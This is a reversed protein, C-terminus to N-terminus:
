TGCAYNEPSGLAFTSLFSSNLPVILFSFKQPILLSLITLSTFKAVDMFTITLLVNQSVSPSPCRRSSLCVILSNSKLNECHHSLLIKQFISGATQHFDVVM